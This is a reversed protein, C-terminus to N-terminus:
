RITNYKRKARMDKNNQKRGKGRNNQNILIKEENKHMQGGVEPFVM